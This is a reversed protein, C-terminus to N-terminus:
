PSDTSVTGKLAEQGSAGGFPGHHSGSWINAGAWESERFEGYTHDVCVSGTSSELKIEDGAKVHDSFLMRNNSSECPRSSGDSVILRIEGAGVIKVIVPFTRSEAPSTTSFLLGALGLVFPARKLPPM